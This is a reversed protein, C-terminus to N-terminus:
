TYSQRVMVTSTWPIIASCRRGIAVPFRISTTLYGIRGCHEHTFDISLPSIYNTVGAVDRCPTLSCFDVGCCRALSKMADIVAFTHSESCPAVQVIAGKVM